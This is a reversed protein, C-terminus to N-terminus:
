MHQLVDLFFNLALLFALAIIRLEWVKDMIDSRKIGNVKMDLLM